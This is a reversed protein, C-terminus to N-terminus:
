LEKVHKKNPNYVTNIGWREKRITIEIAISEVHKGQCEYEPLQRQHIDARVYTMLGGGFATRDKRYLKFGDYAFQNIPFSDDLKTEKNKRM